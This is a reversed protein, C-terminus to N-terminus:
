EDALEVDGIVKIGFLSKSCDRGVWLSFHAGAPTTLVLPVWNFANKIAHSCAQCCSFSGRLDWNFRSANHITGFPWELHGIKHYRKNGKADTTEVEEWRIPCVQITTHDAFDLGLDVLTDTITPSVGLRTFVPKPRTADLKSILQAVPAFDTQYKRLNTLVAVKLSDGAAAILADFDVSQVAQFQGFELCHCLWWGRSFAGANKCLDDFDKHYLKGAASAKQSKSLAAKVKRSAGSVWEGIAESALLLQLATVANERAKGTFWSLVFDSKIM